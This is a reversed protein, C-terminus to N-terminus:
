FGMEADLLARFRSGEFPPFTRLTVPDFAAVTAALDSPSHIPTLGTLFLHVVCAVSSMKLHAALAAALETQHNHLLTPNPVVILPTGLRLVELITGAGAHGIILDARRFDAALSAKSKWLEVRVGDRELRVTDGGAVAEVFEFDSQGCQVVLDTYGRGRLARLVPSSLVTQVLADFQFTGVTVFTLM